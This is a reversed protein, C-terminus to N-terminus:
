RRPEHKNRPSNSCPYQTLTRLDSFEQGCHKCLYKDKITGEYPVHKSTPSDSCPYQTLTRIDSFEQGCYFCFYKSSEEGEYPVHM